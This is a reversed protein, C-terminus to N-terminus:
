FNSIQKKDGEKKIDLQKQTAEYWEHYNKFNEGYKNKFVNNRAVTNAQTLTLKQPGLEGGEQDTARVWTSGGLAGPQKEYAVLDAYMDGQPTVVISTARVIKGKSEELTITEGEPIPVVVGSVDPLDSTGYVDRVKKILPDGEANTAIQLTPSNNDEGDGNGTSKPEDLTRHYKTDVQSKVNSVWYDRLADIDDQDIENPSMGRQRVLVNWAPDSLGGDATFHFQKEALIKLKKKTGKQFTENLTTVNGEETKTEKLGIKESAANVSKQFSYPTRGINLKRSALDKLSIVGPKISEPVQYYVQWKGDVYGIKAGQNNNGLDYMSDIVADKVPDRVISGDLVGQRYNDMTMTVSSFTNSLLEPTRELEAIKAKAELKEQRSTNHNTPDAIKALDYIKDSAQNIIKRAIVNTDSNSTDILELDAKVSIDNWYEEQKKKKAAEDLAKKARRNRNQLRLDDIANGVTNETPATLQRYATYNGKAM